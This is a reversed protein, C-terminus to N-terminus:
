EQYREAVHASSRRYRLVLNSSDAEQKFGFSLEYISVVISADRGLDIDHLDLRSPSRLCSETVADSDPLMFFM